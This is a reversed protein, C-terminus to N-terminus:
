TGWCVARLRIVTLLSSSSLCVKVVWAIVVASNHLATFSLFMYPRRRKTAIPHFLGLSDKLAADLLLQEIHKQNVSKCLVFGKTKNDGHPKQRTAVSIAPASALTPASGSSHFHAHARSPEAARSCLLVSAAPGPVHCFIWAAPM